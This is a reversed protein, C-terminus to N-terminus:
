ESAAFVHVDTAGTHRSPGHQGGGLVLVALAVLLVVAMAVGIAKVWRPTPPRARLEEDAASDSM